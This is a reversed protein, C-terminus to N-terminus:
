SSNFSALLKRTKNSVKFKIARMNDLESCYWNDSRWVYINVPPEPTQIIEGTEIDVSLTESLETEQSELDDNVNATLAKTLSQYLIHEKALKSFIEFAERKQEVDKIKLYDARPARMNFGTIVISKVGATAQYIMDLMRVPVSRAGNKIVFIKTQYKFLEKETGATCKKVDQGKRDTVGAFRKLWMQVILEGKLTGASIEGSMFKDILILGDESNLKERKWMASFVSLSFTGDIQWHIHPRAGLGDQTPINEFARIGKINIDSKRFRDQITRFFKYMQKQCYKLDQIFSIDSDYDHRYINRVTLTVLHSDPLYQTLLEYKNILRGTRIRNCQLCWKCNCYTSTFKKGKQILVRSCNLTTKYKKKLPSNLAILEAALADSIYKSNARKLLTKSKTAYQNPILLPPALKKVTVPAPGTITSWRFHRRKDITATIIESM